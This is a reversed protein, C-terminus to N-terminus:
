ASKRRRKLLALAGLGLAAITAPEPVPTYGMADFGRIDNQSIALLEGDGATPDMIGLGLNDKWHSAQSGDGRSSAGLSFLTLNTAGNDLSFYKSRQDVTVDPSTSAGSRRFLDLPSVFVTNSTTSSPTAGMNDLQDVGSIFGLAHGIEHTAIGTFDIQNAGIGNSPDYDYDNQFATAFNISGDSTTTAGLLGLAKANASNVRLNTISASFPTARNTNPNNAFYNTTITLNPGAQLGGVASL